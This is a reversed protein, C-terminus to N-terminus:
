TNKNSLMFIIFLLDKFLFLTSNAKKPIISKNIITLAEELAKQVSKEENLRQFGFFKSGDYAIEIVFNM